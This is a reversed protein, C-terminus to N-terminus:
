GATSWGTLGGNCANGLPAGGTLGGNCANGLPAGGTQGGNCANGLPAGGRRGGWVKHSFIVYMVWRDEGKRGGGMSQLGLAITQGGGRSRSLTPVPNQKAKQHHFAGKEGKQGVGVLVTGAPRIVHPARPGKQGVGVLVTGAPRIVHPAHPYFAM